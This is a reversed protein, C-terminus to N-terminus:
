GPVIDVALVTALPDIRDEPVEIRVEGHPDANFLEDLVSCRTTWELEQGSAVDVVQEVRSVPLGRVTVAQRDKAERRRACEARYPCAVWKPALDAGYSSTVGVAIAEDLPKDDLFGGLAAGCRQPHDPSGCRM